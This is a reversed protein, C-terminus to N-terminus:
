NPFYNTALSEFVYNCKEEITEFTNFKSYNMNLNYSGNYFLVVDFLPDMVLFRAVQFRIVEGLVTEVDKIRMTTSPSSKNFAVFASYIERKKIIEEYLLNNDAIIDSNNLAYLSAMFSKYPATKNLTKGIELAVHMGFCTALHLHLKNKTKLNILMLCAELEKWSITDGNSLVMSTKDTAGHAEIHLIVEDDDQVENEITKLVDLLDIKSNITTLSHLLDPAYFQCYKSITDNYLETGTQRENTLSELVYIRTIM